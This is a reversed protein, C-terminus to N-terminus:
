GKRRRFLSSKSGSGSGAAEASGASAASKELASVREVLAAVQQQLATIHPDTETTAHTERGTRDMPEPRAAPEPRSAAAARETPEPRQAPETRSTQQSQSPSASSATSQAPMAAPKSTSIPPKGTSTTPRASGAPARSKEAGPPKAPTAVKNPEKATPGSKGAAPAGGEQAALYAMHIEAPLRGRTAVTIGNAIAWRRVDATDPTTVCAIRASIEIAWALGGM